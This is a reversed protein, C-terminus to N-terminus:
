EFSARVNATAGIGALDGDEDDALLDEFGEPLSLEISWEASTVWGTEADLTLTVTYPNFILSSIATFMSREDPTASAFEELTKSGDEGVVTAVEVALQQLLEFLDIEGPSVLVQVTATGNSIDTLEYSFTGDTALGIFTPTKGSVIVPQGVTYNGARMLFMNATAANLASDAALKAAATKPFEELLTKLEQLQDAPLFEDDDAFAALKLLSDAFENITAALEPLNTVGTLAGNSDIGFEVGLDLQDAIALLSTFQGFDAEGFGSLEARQAQLQSMLEEMAINFEGVAGDSNKSIISVRGVTMTKETSFESEPRGETNDMEFLHMTAPNLEVSSTVTVTRADGQEWPPAWTLTDGEVQFSSAAVGNGDGPRDTGCAVATILLAALVALILRPSRLLHTRQRQTTARLLQVM